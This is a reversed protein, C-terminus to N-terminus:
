IPLKTWFFPKPAANTHNIYAQIAAETSNTSNFADRQLCRRTLLSFCGEVLNLWSSSPPTFHLRWRPRKLLWDHVLRTKHTAANDLM